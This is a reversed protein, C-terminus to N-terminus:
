PKVKASLQYYRGDWEHYYIAEITGSESGVELAGDGPVPDPLDSLYITAGGYNYEPIMPRGFFIPFPRVRETDGISSVFMVSQTSDRWFVRSDLLTVYTYDSIHYTDTISVHDRKVFWMSEGERDLNWISDPKVPNSCFALAVSLFSAVIMNRCAPCM